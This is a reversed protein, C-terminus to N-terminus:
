SPIERTTRSKRTAVLRSSSACSKSTGTDLRWTFHRTDSITAYTSTRTLRRPPPTIKRRTTKGTCQKAQVLCSCTLSKSTAKERPTTFHSVDMKTSSAHCSSVLAGRGKSDNGSSKPTAKAYCRSGRSRTTARCMRRSRSTTNGATQTTTAGSSTTSCTSGTPETTLPFSACEVCVRSTASSRRDKSLGATSDSARHTSTRTQATGTSEWATVKVTTTTLPPPPPPHLHLPHLHLHPPPPPPRM